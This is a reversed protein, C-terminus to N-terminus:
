TGTTAESGHRLFDVLTEIESAPVHLAGLHRPQGADEVFMHLRADGSNIDKAVSLTIPEPDVGNAPLWKMDSYVVRM